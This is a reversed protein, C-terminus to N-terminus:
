DNSHEQAEAEAADLAEEAALIQALTPGVDKQRRQLGLRSAV